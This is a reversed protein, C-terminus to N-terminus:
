YEALSEAMLTSGQVNGGIVQHAWLQHAVVYFPYDLDEPDPDDVKAVFVIAVQGRTAHQECGFGHLLHFALQRSALKHAHM